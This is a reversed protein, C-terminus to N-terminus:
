QPFFLNTRRKSNSSGYVTMTLSLKASSLFMSYIQYPFIDDCICFSQCCIALRKSRFSKLEGFNIQQLFHKKWETDITFSENNMLTTTYQHLLITYGLDKPEWRPNGVHYHVKNVRKQLSM